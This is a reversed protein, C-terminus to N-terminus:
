APPAEASLHSKRKEAALCKMLIVKTTFCDIHREHLAKSHDTKHFCAFLDENEQFCPDAAKRDPHYPHYPHQGLVETIHTAQNFAAASAAATQRDLSRSPPGRIYEALSSVKRNGGNEDM